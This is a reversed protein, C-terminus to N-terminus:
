SFPYDEWMYYLVKNKFTLLNKNLWFRKVGLSSLYLDQTTPTVEDELCIILKGLDQDAVQKEWLQKPTYQPLWSTSQLWMRQLDWMQQPHHWSCMLMMQLTFQESPSPCLMSMVKLINGTKMSGPVFNVVEM